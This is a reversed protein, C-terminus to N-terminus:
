NVFRILLGVTLPDVHAHPERQAVIEYVECDFWIIFHLNMKTFIFVYRGNLSVLLELHGFMQSRVTHKILLHSLLWGVFPVLWHKRRGFHYDKDDYDYLLIIWLLSIIRKIGKRWREAPNSVNRFGSMEVM